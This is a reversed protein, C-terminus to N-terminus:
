DLAIVGVQAEFLNKSYLNRELVVSELLNEQQSLKGEAETVKKRWDSIEIERVEVDSVKQQVQPIFFVRNPQTQHPINLM